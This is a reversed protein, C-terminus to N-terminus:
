SAGSRVITGGFVALAERVLPHERAPPPGAAPRQPEVVELRPAPAAVFRYELRLRQEFSAAVADAILRRADVDELTDRIFANGNAVELTLTDGEIGAPKVETLVSALRKRGRLRGVAGAWGVELDPAAASAPVQLGATPPAM